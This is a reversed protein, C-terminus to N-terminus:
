APPRTRAFARCAVMSVGDVESSRLTVETQAGQVLASDKQKLLRVTAMEIAQGNKADFVSSQISRQASLSVTFFLLSFIIIRLVKM